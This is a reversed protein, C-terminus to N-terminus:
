LITQFEVMPSTSDLQPSVYSKPPNVEVILNNGLLLVAITIFAVNRSSFAIAVAITKKIKRIQNEKVELSGLNIELM